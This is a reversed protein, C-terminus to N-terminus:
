SGNDPEKETGLETGLRIAIVSEAVWRQVCSIDVDALASLGVKRELVISPEDTRNVDVIEVTIRLHKTM